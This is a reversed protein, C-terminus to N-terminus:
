PLTGLSKDVPRDSPFLEKMLMGKEWIVKTQTLQCFCFLLVFCLLFLCVLLCVWGVLMSM